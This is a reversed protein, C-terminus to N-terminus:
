QAQASWLRHGAILLGCLLDGSLALLFLGCAVVFVWRLWFFFFLVFVVLLCLLVSDTM